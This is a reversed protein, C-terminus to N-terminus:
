PPLLQYVRGPGAPTRAAFSSVQYGVGRYSVTGREPLRPPGPRTSGALLTSGSRVYILGGTLNQTTHIFASLPASVLAFRDWVRHAIRTLEAVRVATCGASSPTPTPALLTVLLSGSPFAQASFSIAQYRAGHYSVPGQAPIGQAGITGEVSLRSAGRRLLLPDGIFRTELKVYGLDDQVSFLYRGV